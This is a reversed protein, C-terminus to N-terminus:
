LKSYKEATVGQLKNVTVANGVQEYVKTAGAEIKLTSNEFQDLNKKLNELWPQEIASDDQQESM